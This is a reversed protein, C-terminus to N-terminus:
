SRVRVQSLLGVCASLLVLGLLRWVGGDQGILYLGVLPLCYSAFALKLNRGEAEFKLKFLYLGATTNRFFVLSYNYLMVLALGCLTLVMRVSKQSDFVKALMYRFDDSYFSLKILHYLIATDLILCFLLVPFYPMERQRRGELIEVQCVGELRQLLQSLKEEEVDAYLVDRGEKMQKILGSISIGESGLIYLLKDPEKIDRLAIRRM